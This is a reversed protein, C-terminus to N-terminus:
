RIVTWNPPITGADSATKQVSRNASPCSIRETLSKGSRAISRMFLSTPRRSACLSGREVVCPTISTMLPAISSSPNSARDGMVAHAQNDRVTLVDRFSLVIIVHSWSKVQIKPKRTHYRRVICDNERIRISLPLRLYCATKLYQQINNTLFDWYRVFSRLFFISSGGCRDPIFEHHKKLSRSTDISYM